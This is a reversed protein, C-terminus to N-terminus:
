MFTIARKNMKMIESQARVMSNTKGDHFFMVEGTPDKASRGARGAIQVLSAEDFVQHNAELVAVDIAPFTVGRELITTTLLIDYYQKRFATVKEERDLDGAHVSSILPQKNIVRKKKDLFTQLPTLLQEAMQITPVFILIQRSPMQRNELWKLFPKPLKHVTLNKQLSVYQTFAPIPLLQQHYRIPVFVFDLRKNAIQRRQEARPTATLYILSSIPKRAREAAFQLTEDQHFPFADIEDIILLDFAHKFRLLQHTTAILLQATGENDRSGGYLGQIVVSHFAQKLRPLLERVVDARPSAICIRKGSELAETIGPFLMETKGSGTVAWILLKDDRQITQVMRSAAHHQANTLEGQWTCPAEHKPWSAAPGSWHYLPSCELVRGMKICYRCYLHEKRCRACHITAFYHSKNNYCRNCITSLRTTSISPISSLIKESVLMTFRNMPMYFEEQLLLKGDYRKIYEHMQENPLPMTSKEQAIPPTQHYARGKRGLLFEMIIRKLHIM